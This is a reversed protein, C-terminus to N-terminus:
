ICGKNNRIQVLIGIPLVLPKYYFKIVLYPEKVELVM